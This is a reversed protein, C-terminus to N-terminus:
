AMRSGPSVIRGEGSTYSGIARIRRLQGEADARAARTVTLAWQLASRVKGARLELEHPATGRLVAEASATYANLADMAARQDQGAVAHRLRVEARELEILARDLDAREM